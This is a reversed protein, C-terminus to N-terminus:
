FYSNWVQTLWTAMDHGLSTMQLIRVTAFNPGRVAFVRIKEEERVENKGDWRWLWSLRRRELVGVLTVWGIGGDGVLTFEGHHDRRLRENAAHGPIKREDTSRHGSVYMYQTHQANSEVLSSRFPVSYRCLIGNSCDWGERLKQRGCKQTRDHEQHRYKALNDERYSETSQKQRKLFILNRRVAVM